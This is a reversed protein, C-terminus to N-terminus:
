TFIKFKVGFSLHKPKLDKKYQFFFYTEENLLLGNAKQEILMKYINSQNTSHLSTIAYLSDAM